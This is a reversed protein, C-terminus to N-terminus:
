QLLQTFFVADDDKALEIWLAKFFKGEVFIIEHDERIETPTIYILNSIIYFVEEDNIVVIVVGYVGAINKM